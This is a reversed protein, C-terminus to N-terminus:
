VIFLAKKFTVPQATLLRNINRTIIKRNNIPGEHMLQLILKIKPTLWWTELTMLFSVFITFLSSRLIMFWRTDHNTAWLFIIRRRAKERWFFPGLVTTRARGPLLSWFCYCCCCLLVGCCFCWVLLLACRKLHSESLTTTKPTFAVYFVYPGGGVGVCM